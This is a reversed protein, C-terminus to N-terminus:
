RLTFAGLVALVGVVIAWAYAGVQGSQMWSGIAAFGRALWASGNVFLGDILGQDVGKWLLNRSITVTPEVVTDDYIEDVYYKNELVRDFGHAPPAEAKPVLAAPKLRAVAFLVGGVAVVIAIAVLTLETGHPIEAATGHTMRLAAEGVVPDLWHELGGTWGEPLHLLAPLNIAGGIASLVGLVVIPATMTWPAEHLHEREREGTRNSGHFTYLMLRTMYIATLLAGILAFLYVGYLVYTGPIGLWTTDALTSDHARAFVSSLIEDKSFFGAFIPIGAIALTAIWMMAFTWPMYKRFGGMNRM